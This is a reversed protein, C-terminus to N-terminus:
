DNEAIRNNIFLWTFAPASPPPNGLWAERTSWLHKLGCDPCRLHSPIDPLRHFTEPDMEIGTSLERGTNPCQFLVISARHM